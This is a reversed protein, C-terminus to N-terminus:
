QKGNGNGNLVDRVDPRPFTIRAMIRKRTAAAEEEVSDLVNDTFRAQRGVFQELRLVRSRLAQERELAAGRAEDERKEAKTLEERLMRETNRLDTISATTSNSSVEVRKGRYAFFGTICAIILGSIGTLIGVAVGPDIDM